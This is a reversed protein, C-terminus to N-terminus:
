DFIGHICGFLWFEAQACAVCARAGVYQRTSYNLVQRGPVADLSVEARSSLFLFPGRLQPLEHPTHSPRPIFSGNNGYFGRARRTGPASRHISIM